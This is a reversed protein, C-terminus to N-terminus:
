RDCFCHCGTALVSVAVFLALAAAARCGAALRPYRSLRALPFAYSSKM